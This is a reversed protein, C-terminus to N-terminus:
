YFYITQNVSISNVQLMCIYSHLHSIHTYGVVSKCFLTLITFKVTKISISLVSHILGMIYKFTNSYISKWNSFSYYILVSWYINCPFGFPPHILMSFFKRASILQASLPTRFSMLTFLYLHPDLKFFLKM